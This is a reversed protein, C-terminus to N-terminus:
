HCGVFWASLFAFIDQINVVNDGNFDANIGNCPAGPQGMCQNFWASIFDFIDQINLGNVHNVNAPCCTTFNTTNAPVSCVSGYGHWNGTCQAQTTLLCTTGTIGGYAAVNPPLCCAGLCLSTTCTTATGFFTGGSNQCQTINTLVCSGNPLCCPKNVPPCPNPSCTNFTFNNIWGGGFCYAYLPVTICAGSNSNCCVHVCPNATCSSGAPGWGGFCNAQTTVTCGGFYACCRGVPPCLNPQCASNPISTQGTPCAIFISVV